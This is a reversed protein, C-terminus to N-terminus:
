ARRGQRREQRNRAEGLAVRLPALLEAIEKATRRKPVDEPRLYIPRKEIVKGRRSREAWAMIVTGNGDPDDDAYPKDPNLDLWRQVGRHLESETAFELVKTFNVPDASGEPKVRWGIDAFYRVTVTTALQEAKASPHSFDRENRTM